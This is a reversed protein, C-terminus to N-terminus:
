RYNKLKEFLRACLKSWKYAFTNRPMNMKRAAERESFKIMLRCMELEKETLEALEQFLANILEKDCVINETLSSIDEVIDSLHTNGEESIPFDLSLTSNNPVLYRCYECNGDCKWIKKHPCVCEGNRQMKKRKRCIERNWDYYFEKTVPILTVKDNDKADRLPFLYQGQKVKNKM